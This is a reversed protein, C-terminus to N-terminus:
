AVPRWPCPDDSLCGDDPVKSLRYAKELNRSSNCLAEDMCTRLDRGEFAMRALDRLSLAVFVAHMESLRLGDEPGPNNESFFEEVAQEFDAYTWQETMTIVRMTTRM